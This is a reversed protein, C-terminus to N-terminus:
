QHILKPIIVLSFLPTGNAAGHAPPNTDYAASVQIWVLLEVMFLVPFIPSYMCLSLECTWALIIGVQFYTGPNLRRM